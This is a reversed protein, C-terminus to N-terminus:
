VKKVKCTDNKTNLYLNNKKSIKNEKSLTTASKGVFYQEIIKLKLEKNYRTM